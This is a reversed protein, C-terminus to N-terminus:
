AVELQRNYFPCCDKHIETVIYDVRPGFGEIIRTIQRGGLKKNLRLSALNTEAITSYIYDKGFHEFVMDFAEDLFGHKLVMPTKLIISAHCSNHTFNDFIVAGVTENKDEDIAMLGCTDESRILPVFQKCWGWDMPGNFLRMHVKM